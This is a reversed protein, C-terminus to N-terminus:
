YKGESLMVGDHRARSFSTPSGVRRAAGRRFIVAVNPFYHLDWRGPLQM